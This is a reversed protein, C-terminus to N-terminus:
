ALNQALFATCALIGKRSVAHGARPETVYTIQHMVRREELYEIFPKTMSIPVMSDREGHWMYIPVQTLFSEHAYGDYPALLAKVQATQEPTLPIPVGDRKLQEFQTELLKPYSVAGMLISAAEIWTYKSLCGTTTIGGMSTGAVAVKGTLGREDLAQKLVGVEAISTLVIEWFKLNMEVENLGQAREGHLLAEPLIVRVGKEVLNYAYHLNHEKASMFGHLFITIPASDDMSENFVHLAPIGNFIENKVIM